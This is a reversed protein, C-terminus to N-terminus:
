TKSCIVNMKARSLDTKACRVNTKAPRLNNKACRPNTKARRTNTKARRLLIPILREDYFLLLLLLKEHSLIKILYRMCSGCNGPMATSANVLFVVM